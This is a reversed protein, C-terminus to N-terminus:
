TFVPVGAQNAEIIATGVSKSDCPTLVIAAAKRVLFDKVQDKQRAPDFEGATVVVEYGQRAGEAQMADAMEKFFPNTMTLLSIGVVPKAKTQSGSNTKGDDKKDCGASGVVLLLCLVWACWKIWNM